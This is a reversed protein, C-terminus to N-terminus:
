QEDGKPAAAAAGLGPAATTGARGAYLQLIERLGAERAEAGARMAAEVPKSAETVRAQTHLGEWVKKAQASTYSAARGMGIVGTIKDLFDVIASATGPNHIGSKLFAAKMDASSALVNQIENATNKGFLAELKEPGINEVARKFGAHSWDGAANNLAGLKLYDLTASRLDKFAQVGQATHEGKTLLQDRLKVVEDPSSNLVSKRFVEDFETLRDGTRKTGVLSHIIGPDEFQKRLDIRAARAAGYLEGGKGETISDIVRNLEGMWHGAADNGRGLKVGLKRLEELERINPQREIFGAAGSAKSLDDGSAVGMDKLKAAITRLEPVSISAARNEILFQALPTVDVETLTEGAEDAKQYLATVKGEQTKLQAVLPATIKRGAESERGAVTTGGTKLKLIEVSGELAKDQAVFADDLPKGAATKRLNFEDRLQGRDQTMQGKTLSAPAPLNEARAVRALEAPTVPAGARAAEDAQKVLSERVRSPVSSWEIGEAKLARAVDDATVSAAQASPRSLRQLSSATERFGPVVSPAARAALQLGKAAGGGAVTAAITNGLRSEGEPVYNMAGQVGSMTAAETVTGAKSLLRLAPVARGVAHFGSAVAGAPVALSPAVQGAVRGAFATVPSAQRIREYEALEGRQAEHQGPGGTNTIQKAGEWLDIMGRGTSVLFRYPERIAAPANEMTLERDLAERSHPDSVGASAPAAADQKWPAAAADKVPADADWPGAM